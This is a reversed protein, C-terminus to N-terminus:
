TRMTENSNRWGSPSTPRTGPGQTGESAVRVDALVGPACHRRWTDSLFICAKWRLMAGGVGARHLCRSCGSGPAQIGSYCYTAPVV